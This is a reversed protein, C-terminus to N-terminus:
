VGTAAPVFQLGDVVYHGPGAERPARTSRASTKAPLARTVTLEKTGDFPAGDSSKLLYLHMENPGVRAPDVTAELRAARADGAM